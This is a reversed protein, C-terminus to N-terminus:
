RGTKQTMHPPPLLLLLLLLVAAWKRRRHSAQQGAAAEARGPPPVEAEVAPLARVTPLRAQDGLAPPVGARWARLRGLSSAAGVELADEDEDEDEAAAAEAM